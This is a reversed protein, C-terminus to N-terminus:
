ATREIPPSVSLMCEKAEALSKVIFYHGGLNRIRQAVLAQDVSVRGRGNPHKVEFFVLTGYPALVVAIDGLGKKIYASSRYGGFKADYTAGNNNRWCYYGKENLWKLIATQLAAENKM